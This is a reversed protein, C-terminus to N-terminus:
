LVEVRKLGTAEHHVSLSSYRSLIENVVKFYIAIFFSSHSTHYFDGVDIRNSSLFWWSIVRLTKKAKKNIIIIIDKKYTPRSNISSLIVICINNKNRLCLCFCSSDMTWQENQENLKLLYLLNAPLQLFFLQVLFVPQLIRPYASLTKPCLRTFSPQYLLVSLHFQSFVLLM